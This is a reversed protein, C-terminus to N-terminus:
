FHQDRRYGCCLWRSLALWEQTLFRAIGEGEYQAILLRGSLRCRLISEPIWVEKTGGNDSCWLRQDHCDSNLVVETAGAVSYSNGVDSGIAPGCAVIQVYADDQQLSSRAYLWAVLKSPLNGTSEASLVIGPLSKQLLSSRVILLADDNGLYVNEQVETTM